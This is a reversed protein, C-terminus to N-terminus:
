QATTASVQEDNIVAASLVATQLENIAAVLSSKDTTNLNALNNGIVDIATTHAALASLATAFSPM